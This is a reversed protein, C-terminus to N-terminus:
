LSSFLQWLLQKCKRCCRGPLGALLRPPSSALLRPPSSALIMRVFLQQGRRVSVAHHPARQRKPKVQKGEAKRSGCHGPPKWETEYYDTFTHSTNGRPFVVDTPSM